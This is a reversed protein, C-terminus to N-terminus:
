RVFPVTYHYLMVAALIACVLSVRRGAATWSTLSTAVPWVFYWSFIVPMVIWIVAAVFVAWASMLTDLRGDRVVLATLGLYVVALLLGRVVVGGAHSRSVIEVRDQEIARVRQDYM